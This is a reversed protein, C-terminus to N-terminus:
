ADNLSLRNYFCWSLPSYWRLLFSVSTFKWKNSRHWITKDGNFTLMSFLFFFWRCFDSNMQWWENVTAISVGMWHLRIELGKWEFILCRNITRLLYLFVFCVFFIYTFIFFTKLFQLTNNWPQSTKRMKSITRRDTKRWRATSAGVLCM